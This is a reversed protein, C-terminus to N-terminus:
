KHNLQNKNLQGINITVYIKYNLIIIMYVNEAYFSVCPNIHRLVWGDIM